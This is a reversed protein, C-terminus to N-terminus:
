SAQSLYRGVWLLDQDFLSYKQRLLVRYLSPFILWCWRNDQLITPCQLHLASAIICLPMQHRPHSLGICIDGFLMLGGNFDLM